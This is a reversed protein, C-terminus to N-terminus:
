AGWLARGMADAADQKQAAMIHGYVDKTIAIGSHGLVDSVVELPVGQALMLSASSHRLEHLHWRGLGASESLRAFAKSLNDPDVPTGVKSTFVLDTETWAPGVELREALQRRRHARLVEVLPQPIHLSRRSTVTKLDGIVLEGRLRKLARDIHMVGADLEVDGWQLGLAEGRRLGLSILLVYLAEHRDGQVAQLFTKAQAVSLSRGPGRRVPPGETLAAVNRAALGWREAAKLAQVLVVRILRVTRPSLGDDLKARLLHQVASPALKAVRMTGLTPTIHLRAITPTSGSERVDLILPM